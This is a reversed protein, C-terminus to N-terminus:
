LREVPHLFPAFDQVDVDQAVRRGVKALDDIFEVSGMQKVREAKVDSLGMADLDEQELHANYRAYLFKRGLDVSLPLVDGNADRPIM